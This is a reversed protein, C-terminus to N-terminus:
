NYLINKLFFNRRLRRAQMPDRGTGDWARNQAAAQPWKKQTHGRAKEERALVCLSHLAVAGNGKAM